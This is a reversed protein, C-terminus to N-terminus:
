LVFTSHSLRDDEKERVKKKRKREKKKKKEGEKRRVDVPISSLPPLTHTLCPSFHVSFKEACCCFSWRREREKEEVGM